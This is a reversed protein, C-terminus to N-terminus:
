RQPERSELLETYKFIIDEIKCYQNIKGTKYLEASEKKLKKITKLIEEENM